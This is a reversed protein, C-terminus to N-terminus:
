ASLFRRFSAGVVEFREERLGAEAAFEPWREVAEEVERIVAKAQRTRISCYEAFALLDDLVFGDRRGNVSMQHSGTWEGAPNHAYTVDYAPSLRWAGRKDMLFAINKTHDDQNRTVLNFVTRRFQEEIDARSLDIRRMTQICQEYSTAGALNFDFHGMACLSQLHIKKGEATRDFRRTMFHARGNERLLRCDSMEIGAERAMLHYAYEIEGYGMPDALEKDRNEAVGDFKILWPEFGALDSVQGSRIEGTEPPWAIVAKARAGGASTGVQIIDRLAEAKESPDGGTDLAVRL